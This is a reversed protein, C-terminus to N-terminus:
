RSPTCTTPRGSRCRGHRARGHLPALSAVLKPQGGGDIIYGMVPGSAPERIRMVSTGTDTDVTFLGAVTANMTISTAYMAQPSM